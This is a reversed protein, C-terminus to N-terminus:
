WLSVLNPKTVGLPLPLPQARTEALKKGTIPSTTEYVSPRSQWKEGMQRIGVNLAIDSADRAHLRLLVHPNAHAARVSQTIRRLTDMPPLPAAGKATQHSNIRHLHDLLQQSFDIWGISRV